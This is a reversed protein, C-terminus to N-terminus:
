EKNLFENIQRVMEDIENLMMNIADNDQESQNLLAKYTEPKKCEKMLITLWSIRYLQPVDDGTVAEYLVPGADRLAEQKRYMENLDAETKNAQEVAAYRNPDNAPINNVADWMESIQREMNNKSILNSSMENRKVYKLKLLLLIEALEM